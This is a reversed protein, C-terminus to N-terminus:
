FHLGYRLSINNDTRENFLDPTTVHDLSLSLSNQDDIRYGFELTGHLALSPGWLHRNPDEAGIQTLSGALGLNGSVGYIDFVNWAFGAFSRSTGTDRDLSIGFQPRPSFLMHLVGQDPSRLAITFGGTSGGPLSLPSGMLNDLFSIQFDPLPAGGRVLLGGNSMPGAVPGGAFAPLALLLAGLASLVGAGRRACRVCLRHFATLM